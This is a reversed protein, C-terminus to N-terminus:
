PIAFVFGTYVGACIAAAKLDCPPYNWRWPPCSGPRYHGLTYVCETPCEAALCYPLAPVTGFFHAASCASQMCNSCCTNCGWPCCGGCVYGYREANTDEFYLPQYCLCTADWQYSMMPWCRCACPGANIEEWCPTAFDTPERGTPQAIGIGLECIPRFRAAACPDKRLAEAQSINNPAPLTGEPQPSTPLVVTSNPDATAPNQPAVNTPAQYETQQVARPAPKRVYADADVPADSLVTDFPDVQEPREIPGFPDEVQAAPQVPQADEALAQGVHLFTVVAVALVFSVLSTLRRAVCAPGKSLSNNM